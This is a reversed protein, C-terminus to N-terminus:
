IGILPGEVVVVSLFNEEVLVVHGLLVEFLITKTEINPFKEADLAELAELILIFGSKIGDISADELFNFSLFEFSVLDSVIEFFL